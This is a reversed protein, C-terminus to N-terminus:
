GDKLTPKMTVAGFGGHPIILYEQSPDPLYTISPICQGKDNVTIWLYPWPRNFRVGEVDASTAKRIELHACGVILLMLACVTLKRVM